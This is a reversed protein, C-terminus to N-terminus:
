QSLRRASQRIKEVKASEPISYVAQANKRFVKEAIRAATEKSYLGEEVYDALAEAFCRKAFVFASYAREVTEADGSVMMKSCPLVALWEKLYRTLNVDLLWPMWCIDLYANPFSKVLSAMEGVFPYSAHFLIFKTRPYEMLLNVLQLPNGRQPPNGPIGHMGTHLQVPFNLETAKEIVTRIAYDEFHKADEATLDEETKCFIAEAETRSVKSVQLDRNYAVRLKIAHGGNDRVKSLALDILALYEDLTEFGVGWKKRIDDIPSAPWWGSPSFVSPANATFHRGSRVWVFPDMGPGPVFLGDRDLYGPEWFADLFAVEINLRKRMVFDYWDERQYAKTIRRSLTQWNEGTIEDNSFNYLDKFAVM